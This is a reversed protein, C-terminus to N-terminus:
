TACFLGGTPPTETEDGLGDNTGITDASFECASIGISACAVDDLAYTESPFVTEEVSMTVAVSLEEVVSVPTVPSDTDDVSTEEPLTEVITSVSFPPSEDLEDVTLETDSIEDCSPEALEDCPTTSSIAEVVIGDESLAEDVAVDVSIEDESSTEDVAVDETSRDTTM